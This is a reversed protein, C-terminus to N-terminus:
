QNASFSSLIAPIYVANVIKLKEFTELDAWTTACVEDDELVFVQKPDFLRAKYIVFFNPQGALTVLTGTALIQEVIIEAGIEEFVERKLGDIVKEGVHLRGGPMDWMRAAVDQDPYQVLLIKGDQIILAKQTVQGAFHKEHDNKKM